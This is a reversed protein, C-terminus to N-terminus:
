KLVPNIYRNKKETKKGYQIAKVPCRNICATCWDCKEKVWVPKGDEMRVAGVPCVTQCLGCGICSEDARFKKTGRTKRYIQYSAKTLLKATLGSHYSMRFHYRIDEIIDDVAKESKRLIMVQAEPNPVNLLLLFNEPMVVQYVAKLRCNRNELIDGLMRDAAGASGACTFVACCEPGDGPFKLQKLFDAAAGPLGWFYVPMVLFVMEDKEPNWLFEKKRLAQAMDTMEGGFAEQLKMAVYKSNGTASYYFIM